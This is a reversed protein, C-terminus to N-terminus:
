PGLRGVAALPGLVLLVPGLAAVALSLGAILRGARRAARAHEEAQIALAEMADEVEAVLRANERELQANQRELGQRARAQRANAAALQQAMAAMSCWLAVGGTPAPAVQVVWEVPPAAAPRGDSSVPRLRPAADEGTSRRAPWTAGEHRISRATATPIDPGCAIGAGFLRDMATPHPPWATGGGDRREVVAGAGGRERRWGAQEVGRGGGAGDGM